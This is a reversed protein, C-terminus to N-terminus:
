GDATRRGLVLEAMDLDTPGTIKFNLADAPQMLVPHGAAEVLAADDSARGLATEDLALARRLVGARFAQPTQVTWLRNRDPTEAVTYLEAPSVTATLRPGTAVKITDTAPAAAIIGGVEEAAGALAAVLAEIGATTVMARAADHVVVLGADGPIADLARSVSHSRSSGGTVVNVDVAPAGDGAAAELQQRALSELEPEYGPPAAIVVGDILASRALALLPWAFLPRGAVPVIAKPRSLGLRLGSGGAALIAFTGSGGGPAPVPGSPGKATM